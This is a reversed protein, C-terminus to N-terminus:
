CNMKAIVQAVVKEDKIEVIVPKVFKKMIKVEGLLLIGFNLIESNMTFEIM